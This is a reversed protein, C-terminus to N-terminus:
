IPTMTEKFSLVQQQQQLQNVQKLSLQQRNRTKKANPDIVISTYLQFNEINVKFTSDIHQVEPHKIYWERM